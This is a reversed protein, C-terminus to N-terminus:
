SNLKKKRSNITCEKKTSNDQVNMLLMMRALAHLALMKTQTMSVNVNKNRHLIRLATKEQNSMNQARKMGMTCQFVEDLMVRVDFCFKDVSYYEQM